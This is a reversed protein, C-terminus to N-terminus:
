DEVRSVNSAVPTKLGLRECVERLLANDRRIIEERSLGEDEAAHKERIKHWMEDMEAFTM